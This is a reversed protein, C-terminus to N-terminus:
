VFWVNLVVVFAIVGVVGAVIFGIGSRAMQQFLRLVGMGFMSLIFLIFLAVTIFFSASLGSINVLNM